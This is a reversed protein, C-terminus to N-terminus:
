AVHTRGPVCSINTDDHRWNQELYRRGLAGGSCHAHAALRYKEVADDVESRSFALEPQELWRRISTRRRDNFIVQLDSHPRGEPANLHEIIVERIEEPSNDVLIYDDAIGRIGQSEYPEDLLERLSLFRQRSRSFVHKPIALDGRRRPFTIAWESLNTLVVHKDFLWAVDLPGSNVGIYFRCASILYIDMLESKYPTHPYDIVRDLAPLPTMSPDGLRVVFGGAETVARLGPLYDLISCNRFAGINWDGHFGGERVHLCAYWSNLPVGLAVRMQEAHRRDDPRLQVGPPAEYQEEWRCSEVVDWTFREVEVNDPQWLRARGISPVVWFINNRTMAALRRVRRLIARPRLYAQRLCFFIVTLVWGALYGFLGDNRVCHPSDVALLARNAVEVRLKWFLPRPFLFMARKQERRARLLGYYLEEACNGLSRSYPTMFLIQGRGNLRECLRNLLQYGTM